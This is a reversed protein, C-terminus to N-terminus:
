TTGGRTTRCTARLAQYNTDVRGRPLSLNAGVSAFGSVRILPLGFDQPNTVTNLGISRPDFDRDEPLFTEDFRNYGGRVELLLKPSLLHTFSGSLLHM